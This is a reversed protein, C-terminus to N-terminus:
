LPVFLVLEYQGLTAMYVSSRINFFNLFNKKRGFRFHCFDLLKTLSTDSYKSDFYLTLPGKGRM